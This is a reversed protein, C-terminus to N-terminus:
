LSWSQSERYLRSQSIPKKTGWYGCLLLLVLYTSYIFLFTLIILIGAPSAWSLPPLPLPVYSSPHSPLRKIVCLVFMSWTWRSIKLPFESDSGWVVDQRKFSLCVATEEITIVLCDTDCNTDWAYNYGFNPAKQAKLGNAIFSQQSM